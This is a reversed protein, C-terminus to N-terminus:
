VVLDGVSQNKVDSIRTDLNKELVINLEKELFDLTCHGAPLKGSKIEKGDGTEILAITRPNKLNYWYNYLSCFLLRKYTLKEIPHELHVIHDKLPAVILVMVM